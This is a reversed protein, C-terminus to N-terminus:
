IELNRNVQKPYYGGLHIWYLGDKAEPNLDLINACDYGPSFVEGVPDEGVYLLFKCNLQIISARPTVRRRIMSFITHSNMQLMIYIREVERHLSVLFGM